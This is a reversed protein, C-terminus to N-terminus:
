QNTRPLVMGVGAPGSNINTWTSVDGYNQQMVAPWHHDGSIWVVGTRTLAELIEDREILYYRWADETGRTGLTKSSSVV